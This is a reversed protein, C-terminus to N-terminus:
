DHWKRRRGKLRGSFVLKPIDSLCLFLAAAFLYGAAVENKRRSTKKL